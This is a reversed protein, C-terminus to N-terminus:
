AFCLSFYLFFDSCAFALSIQFKFRKEGAEHLSRLALYRGAKDAISLAAADLEAGLEADSAGWGALVGAAGGEAADGAGVGAASAAAHAAAVTGITDTRATTLYALAGRDLLVRACEKFGNEAAVM